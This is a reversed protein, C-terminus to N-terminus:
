DEVRAKETMEFESVNLRGSGAEYMNVNRYTEGDVQLACPISFEVKVEDGEIIEVMERHKIHEGKFLKPFVMLTKLKSGGHMVMVSLKGSTRDQMPAVMMGGGYFRGKMASSIWVNKYEYVKGDVTVKADPRKYKFLLLKISLTTYNINKKGKAILDDAEECVMGDIGFGIGNIYKLKVDGIKVEPLNKMYKRIDESKDSEFNGIDRLFDNGTGSKVLYVPAPIEIDYTDNAFRNLTGDGGYLFIEDDDKIHDIFKKVDLSLLNLVKSNEDYNFSEDIPCNVAKPNFLLYKM